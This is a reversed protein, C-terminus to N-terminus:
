REECSCLIQRRMDIDDEDVANLLARTVRRRMHPSDLNDFVKGLHVIQNRMAPGLIDHKSWSSVNASELVTELFHICPGKPSCPQLAFHFVRDLVASTFRPHERLLQKQTLTMEIISIFLETKAEIGHVKHEFFDLCHRCVVLYVAKKSFYDIIDSEGLKEVIRCIRRMEDHTSMNEAYCQFFGELTRECHNNQELTRVVEEEDISCDYLISSM